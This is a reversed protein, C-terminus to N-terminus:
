NSNLWISPYTTSCITDICAQVTLLINCQVSLGFISFWDQLMLSWSAEDGKLIELTLFLFFVFTYNQQRSHYITIYQYYPCLLTITVRRFYIKRQSTAFNYASSVTRMDEIQGFTIKKMVTTFIINILNEFNLFQFKWFTELTVLGGELKLQHIHRQWDIFNM